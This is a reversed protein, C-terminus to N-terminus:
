FTSMLALSSSKNKSPFPSLLTRGSTKLIWVSYCSISNLIRVLVACLYIHTWLTHKHMLMDTHTLLAHGRSLGRVTVRLTQTFFIYFSLFCLLSTISSFHLFSSSPSFSPFSTLSLSSSSLCIHNAYPHLSLSSSLSHPSSYNSVKLPVNRQPKWILKAPTDLHQLKDLKDKLFSHSLWIKRDKKGEMGERGERGWTIKSATETCPWGPKIAMSSMRTRAWGQRLHNRTHTHTDWLPQGQVVTAGSLMMQKIAMECLCVWLCQTFSLNHPKSVPQVSGPLLDLSPAKM